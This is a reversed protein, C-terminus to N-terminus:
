GQQASPEDKPNDRSKILRRATIIGIEFLVILGILSGLSWWSWETTSDTFARALLPIGGIGVVFLVAVSVFITTNGVTEDHVDTRARRGFSFYVFLFAAVVVLGAGLLPERNILIAGAAGAGASVLSILDAWTPTRNHSSFFYASVSALVAAFPVFVVLGAERDPQEWVKYYILLSSVVLFVSLVAAISGVVCESRAIKRKSGNTNVVAVICAVEPRLRSSRLIM